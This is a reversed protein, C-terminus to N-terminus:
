IKRRRVDALEQVGMVLMLAYVLRNPEALLVQKGASRLNVVENMLEGAAVFEVRRLGRCDIVINSRGSSFEGLAKLEAQMRGTLEGALVFAGPEAAPLGSAATEAALDPRSGGDADRDACRLSAPLPEWSPPSLEYTVAFDISLDEFAQPQDLVRLTFLALMWGAHDEDRRGPEITARAADHLKEVGRMALCSKGPSKELRTFLTMLRAAGAVDVAQVGAFDVSVERRKALGRELVDIRAGIADDIRAPMSVVAASGVTAAAGVVADPDVWAPPSSEFRAAYDLALSEFGAKDHTVQLLDLLMLWALQQFGGLDVESIARRLSAAAADSQGNAYLIAAEEMEGPLSSANIDIAHLAADQGFGGPVTTEFWETIPRSRNAEAVAEPLPAAQTAPVTNPPAGSMMESEIRNIKEETLRAASRQAEIATARSGPAQAAGTPASSADAAGPTRAGSAPSAIRGSVPTAQASDARRDADKGKRKFLSFVM